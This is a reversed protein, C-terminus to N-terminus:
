RPLRKRRLMSCSSATSTSTRAKLQEEVDLWGLHDRIANRTAEVGDVSPVALVVANRYVRPSDPSTKEDLFRRAEPHPRNASSAAKPGLIAFHFEGDDEIDRSREPLMHVHAGTAGAGSTLSKCGRIEDRLREEIVEPSICLTADHHMQRLNPRFGLRWSKPLLKSGDQNTETNQMTSEDLFWSVETWRHLAKESEIEDPHTPGLLMLLDRTKADKGIPQSHLFTAFVAQEVERFRLAAPTSKPPPRPSISSSTSCADAGPPILGWKKVCMCSNSKTWLKGERQVRGKAETTWHDLRARSVSQMCLNARDTRRALM